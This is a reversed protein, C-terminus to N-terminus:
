KRGPLEKNTEIMDELMKIQDAINPRTEGLPITTKIGNETINYKFSQLIFEEVEDEELLSDRVAVLGQPPSTELVSKQEALELNIRKVPYDLSALYSNTWVQADSRNTINSQSQKVERLGYLEQSQCYYTKFYLSYASENWTGDYYEMVQEYEVGYLHIGYVESM